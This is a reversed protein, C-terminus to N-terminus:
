NSKMDATLANTSIEVAYSWGKSSGTSYAPLLAISQRGIHRTTDTAAIYYNGSQAARVSYNLGEIEDTAQNLNFLCNSGWVMLKELTNISSPIDTAINLATM